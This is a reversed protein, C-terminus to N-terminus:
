VWILRFTIVGSHGSNARLSFIGLKFLDFNLGHGLHILFKSESLFTCTNANGALQTEACEM